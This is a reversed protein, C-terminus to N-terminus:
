QKGLPRAWFVSRAHTFGKRFVVLDEEEYIGGDLKAWNMHTANYAEYAVYLASGIALGWGVYPIFKSTKPKLLEMGVKRAVM